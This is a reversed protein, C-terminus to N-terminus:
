ENKLASELEKIQKEVEKRKQRYDALATNLLKKKLRSDGKKTLDETSVNYLTHSNWCSVEENPHEDCDECLQYLKSSLTLKADKHVHLSISKVKFLKACNHKTAEVSDSTEYGCKACRYITEIGNNDMNGEMLEYEFGQHCFGYTDSLWDSLQEDIDESEDVEIDAVLRDPLENGELDEDCDWYIKTFAVKM